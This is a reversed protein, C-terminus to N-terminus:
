QKILVKENLAAERRSGDQSAVNHRLCKPKYAEEAAKSRAQTLAKSQLNVRCMAMEKM